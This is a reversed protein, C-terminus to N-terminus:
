VFPDTYQLTLLPFKELFQQTMGLMKEQSAKANLSRTAESHGVKTRAEGLDADTSLNDQGYAYVFHM